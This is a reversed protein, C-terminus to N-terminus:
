KRARTVKEFDISRLLLFQVPAVIVTFIALCIWLSLLSEKFYFVGILVTPVALIWYANQTFGYILANAAHAAPQLAGSVM